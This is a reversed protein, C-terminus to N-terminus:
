FVVNDQFIVEVYNFLTQDGSPPILFDKLPQFTKLPKALDEEM